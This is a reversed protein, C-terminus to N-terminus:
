DPLILNYKANKLKKVSDEILKANDNIEQFIEGLKKIMDEFDMKKKKGKKTKKMILIGM